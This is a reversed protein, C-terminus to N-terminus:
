TVIEWFSNRRVVNTCSIKFQRIWYYLVKTGLFVKPPMIM